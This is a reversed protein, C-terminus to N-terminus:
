RRGRWGCCPGPRGSWPRRRWIRRNRRRWRRCKHLRRGTRVARGPGRRWRSGSSGDWPPTSLVERNGGYGHIGSGQFATDPDFDVEAREPLVEAPDGGGYPGRPGQADHLRVGVAEAHLRIGGRKRLRVARPEADGFGELGQLEDRELPRGGRGPGDLDEGRDEGIFDLRHDLRADGQRNHVEGRRLADAGGRLFQLRRRLDVELEIGAHAAEADERRVGRPDDALHLAKRM